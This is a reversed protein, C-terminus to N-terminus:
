RQETTWNVIDDETGAQKDPGSSYLDFDMNTHKSPQEYIYEQGWPDIPLVGNEFYPGHWNTAGAPQEVLSRLGEQTTPLHGVDQEFMGLATPINSRIAIAATQKKTTEARGVFRPVVLTALTVLIVMVLLLEILTFAGAKRNFNRRRKM